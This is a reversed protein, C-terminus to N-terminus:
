FSIAARYDPMQHPLVMLLLIIKVYGDEMGVEIGLGTFEGTTTTQLNQFADKTLYMSHPDLGTLMGQIAYELLTSDDIDEVYGERIQNYVEAFTRLEELPLKGKEELASLPLSLTLTTLVVTLPHRFFLSLRM